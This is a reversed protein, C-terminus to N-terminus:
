ETKGEFTFTRFATEHPRGPAVYLTPNQSLVMIVSFLTSSRSIAGRESDRSSLTSKILEVDVTTASDRIRKEVAEFRYCYYAGELTTLDKKKLYDLYRTSFDDNALPHNTHYTRNAGPYPIFQRVKNASCELSVANEPGGVIYNQGSAHKISKIFRIADQFTQQKLVGRIVFAM